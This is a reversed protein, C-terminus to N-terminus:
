QPNDMLRNHVIVRSRDLGEEVRMRNHYTPVCQCRFDSDVQDAHVIIDDEPVVHIDPELATM